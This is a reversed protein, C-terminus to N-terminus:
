SVHDYEFEFIFNTQYWKGNQGVENFRVNRFLVNNDTEKSQLLELMTQVSPALTRVGEGQTVFIQTTCVGFRRYRKAPTKGSLTAEISQNHRIFVKGWTGSDPKDDDTSNEFILPASSFAAEWATKVELAIDNIAQLVTATM